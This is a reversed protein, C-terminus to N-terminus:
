LELSWPLTLWFSPGVVFQMQKCAVRPHGRIYRVYDTYWRLLATDLRITAQLDMESTEGEQIM